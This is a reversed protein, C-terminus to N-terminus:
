RKAEKKYFEHDGIEAVRTMSASWGPCVRNTHYHTAGRSYDPVNKAGHMWLVAVKAAKVAEAWAARDTVPPRVDTWSFQSRQFVVRRIKRYDYQARRLTVQAVAVQGQFPEGRAEHYVNLALCVLPACLVSM